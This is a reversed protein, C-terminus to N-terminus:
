KAGIGHKKKFASVEAEASVLQKRLRELLGPLREMEFSRNRFEIGHDVTRGQREPELLLEAVEAELQPLRAAHSNFRDQANKICDRLVDANSEMDSLESQIALAQKRRTELETQKQQIEATLALQDAHVDRLSKVASDHGVSRRPFHQRGAAAPELPIHDPHCEKLPDSGAVPANKIITNKPDLM